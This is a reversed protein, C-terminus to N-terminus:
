FAAVARVYLSGYKSLNGIDGSDFYVFWAHNSYYETSCWYYSSTFATFVGDDVAKRFINNGDTQSNYWYCRALLGATPLFWNHSKFKDALTASGSLQPQYAYAASAAPFYLQTWKAYNVDEGYVDQMHTRLIGMLSALSELETQGSSAHPIDLPGLRQEVIGEDPIAPELVVGNNLIANRHAIIKLTKAYGSNVIDGSQYESGALQALDDTLTRRTADDKYLSDSVTGGVVGDGGAKTPEIPKFGHNLIGLSSSEDRIDSTGINYTSLGSSTINVITPIDYFTSTTLNAEPVALKNQEETFDYLDTSADKQYYYAGWQWYSYSLNGTSASGVATANRTAIMLRKQKDEANFLEAVINGDSDTPALYCCVGIVQKEGDYTDPSSFTGDHYVYDGLQAKRNYLAIEKSATLVVYQGNQYTTVTAIIKAKDDMNSLYSVTLLGTVPDITARSFQLYGDEESLSFVIKTFNNVFTSNPIVSFPYENLGDNYFNGKVSVTSLARNAYTILLGQHESHTPDDVNGWKQNIKNKIDFTVANQAANPEYISISGHLNVNQIDAMWSLVNVNLNSWQVSAISLTQLPQTSSTASVTKAEYLETAFVQTNLKTVQKGISLSTLVDYGEFSLTTLNPCGDIQFSQLKDNLYVESLLNSAPLEVAFVNTSRIDFSVMRTLKKVDILGGIGTCGNLSFEKLRTAQVVVQSPRFAPVSEGTNTDIYFETPNAEFSVLREGKLTFTADSKTSTNGLNGFSRYYNVGYVAMGTDGSVSGLSLRYTEGPAVRVHPNTTASTGVSGTPYLYQHPVVDFAYTAPTGDPNPYAQLAFADSSGEIGISGQSSSVSFDGWAAYSAAYVLRRKMYQLESELQSGLSQTLPPIQRLTSVFGLSAPYEYRIRAAENYAIAPFYYQVSFFYKHLFGWATTKQAETVGPINDTASVLSCMTQLITSMMAALEGQGSYNTDEYMLECLNFLVNASGEYLIHTKNVDEDAYPHMRDIYYPKTQRGNNDTKVITDVDDQHLEFLHTGPDLVYYTNKSCNDTGALFFNVYAYHFKLSNVNFHQGINQKAHAVIAAIFATNLKAYQNQNESTIASATITDTQLNRAAYAGTFTDWMGAKVWQGTSETLEEWRYMEYKAAISDGETFWYSYSQDVTNDSLFQTANGLYYKIRPNHWYLFNWAARVYNMVNENPVKYGDVTVSKCKDMDLNVKSEIPYSWGDLEGDDYHNLVKHDFPVRMDSLSSNNEAGEIMIFDTHKSKNYGWTVDDMKGPGFTSPGRYVPDSNESAQVFFFFPEVVKCVRANPTDQQMTNKGVIATHLDNYSSVGGPLHSQMCSAYNIKNVLKQALPVGARVQYGVGRYKGNGDIWGDPVVVATRSSDSYSYTDNLNGGTITCTGDNNDVIVLSSHIDAVPVTIEYEVDKMKSQMNSYYYTNATSGQRSSEMCVCDQGSLYALYAAKCLTGSLDANLSGDENYQFIEWYGKQKTQLEQYPEVGHWILVRKGHEKVKEASIVGNNDLLDNDYKKAIKEATTPLTSIYNNIVNMASLQKNAYCRISYIDIDASDSGITIGGNSMAGTCFEDTRAVSFEFERYMDGNVYIRVLRLVNAGPEPVVNHNINVSIHTRKGEQWFFDNQEVVSGNSATLLYGRMSNFQLGIMGGGANTEKLQIVPAEEPDTINRVAFDFELTMSSEPGPSVACFQSFPNYQINLRQGALVRLVRQNDEPNTIWGDNIGNFGMWTSAVEANNNRANYIKRFDSESNNRIKPNILFTSGATPSFSNSNDVIVEMNDLGTSEELFNYAVGNDYRWVRFYSAYSAVSEGGETDEIEVTTILDNRVGPTIQENIVFYRQMNSDNIANDSYGTLLFAVEVPETGSTINGNADIAPNFVSYGCWQAQSYNDVESIVNQLMIYPQTRQEATATENNIVMFRNVEVDSTIEGGDGDSCSLWATVSHVGHSLIGYENNTDVVDRTFNDTIYQSNGLAYEISQTSQSGSIQIHLTKNIAGYIHYSIPFVGNAADVPVNYNIQSSLTLNVSTISYTINSSARVSANGNDDTYQFSVRFRILNHSSAALYSQLNIAIPYTTVDLDSSRVVQTGVQQWTTGNNISREIVLTGNAGYNESQSTAGIIHVSSYRLNVNFAGGDKVVYDNVTSKDSNLSAMYSDGSVTSIPLIMDQLLLHANTEPDENYAMADERSAFCELHYFMNSDTSSSPQIYGYLTKLYNKLSLEIQDGTFDDWNENIIDFPITNEDVM